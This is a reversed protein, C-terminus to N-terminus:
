WSRMVQMCGGIVLTTVGAGTALIAVWPWNIFGRQPSVAEGGGAGADRRSMEVMVAAHGCELLGQALKLAEMPDMDARSLDAHEHNIQLRVRGTARTTVDISLGGGVFVRKLM